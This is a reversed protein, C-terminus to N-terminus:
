QAAKARERGEITRRQLTAKLPRGTAHYGYIFILAVIILSVACYALAASVLVKRFDIAM